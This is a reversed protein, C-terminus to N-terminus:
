EGQNKKDNMQTKGSQQAPQENGTVGDKVDKAVNKTGDWVDGTVKKTGDWVDSTVTKTGDWVDSAAEKTGSWIANEGAYAAAAFVFSFSICIIKKLNKM